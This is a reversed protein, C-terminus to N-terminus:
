CVSTAEGSESLVVPAEWIIPAGSLHREVWPRFRNELTKRRVKLTPTVLQDDVSWENNCIFIQNVREHSQLAKNIEKMQTLLLTDIESRKMGRYRQSLTALIVPQDLGHGMACVQGIPNIAGFLNELTTPKVFKGKTTKFTESLRGTLYLNGKKDIYGTDGTHLYGDKLVEATKEPELYYGKMTARSKFLVEGNDAIKLENDAFPRGVSGPVPDEISITGYILNETMGYGDRLPMGLRAFWSKVEPPTPASGTIFIRVCELGLQRQIKRKTWEAIGPIKLLLRTVRPSLRSEVGEKFKLWLRPVSFFMTPKIARLDEVFTDLSETFSVSAGCYLSQMEVAIREAAHALPLYSVFRDKEGYGFPQTMRTMVFTLSSYSHQVGKPNGTTGSTYMITFITDLDSCPSEDWPLERALIDELSHDVEETCEDIGVRLIGPPLSDEPLGPRDSDGEFMLQADSHELVYSISEPAQGPYLPVSIHGSLMIALDVVVWDSCNNGYLAIRTGAPYNQKHIFTALRRVRDAFEGWTLERWQRKVPQRLYVRDPAAQEWHYLMELPTIHEKELMKEEVKEKGHWCLTSGASSM